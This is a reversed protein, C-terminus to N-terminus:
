QEVLLIINLDSVLWTQVGAWDCQSWRNRQQAGRYLCSSIKDNAGGKVM